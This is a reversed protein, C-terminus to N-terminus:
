RPNIWASWLRPLSDSESLSESMVSMISLYVALVALYVCFCTRTTRSWVVMRVALRHNNHNSRNCTRKKKGSCLLTKLNITPPTRPRRERRRWRQYIISPTSSSLSSRLRSEHHVILNPKITIQYSSSPHDRLDSVGFCENVEPWILTPFLFHPLFPAHPSPLLKLWDLLCMHMCM